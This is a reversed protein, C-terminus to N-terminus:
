YLQDTDKWNGIVYNVIVSKRLNDIVNERVGHVVPANKHSMWGCNNKFPVTRIYEGDDDFISTGWYLEGDGIYVLLTILKEPIDVHNNLYFGPLDQCLEVRLKGDSCDVGTLETFFARSQDTDWDAFTNNIDNDRTVFQRFQNQASRKGNFETIEPDCFMSNIDQLQQHTFVEDVLLWHHPLGYETYKNLM